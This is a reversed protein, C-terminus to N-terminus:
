PEPDHVPCKDAHFTIGGDAWYCWCHAHMTIHEMAMEPSLHDGDLPVPISVACIPCDFVWASM